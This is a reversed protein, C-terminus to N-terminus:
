KLKMLGQVAQRPLLIQFKWSIMDMVFMGHEPSHIKTGSFTDQCWQESPNANSFLAFCIITAISLLSKRM